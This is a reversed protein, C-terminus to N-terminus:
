RNRRISGTRHRRQRSGPTFLVSKRQPQQIPKPTPPEPTDTNKLWDPESRNRIGSVIGM